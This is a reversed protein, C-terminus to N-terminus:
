ISLRRLYPQSDSIHLVMARHQQQYPHQRHHHHPQQRYHHRIKSKVRVLHFNLKILCRNEIQWCYRVICKQRISDLDHFFSGFLFLCSVDVNSILSTSFPFNPTKTKIMRISIWTTFSHTKKFINLHLFPVVLPYRFVSFASESYCYIYIRSITLSHSYRPFM